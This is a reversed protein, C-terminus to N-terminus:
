VVLPEATPMAERIDRQLKAQHVADQPPIRVRNGGTVSSGFNVNHDRYVTVPKGIWQRWDKGYAAMLIRINIKVSLAFRREDDFELVLVDEAPRGGKEPFTTESVGTIVLDLPGDTLDDKGIWQGGVYRSADYSATNISM